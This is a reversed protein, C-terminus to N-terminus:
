IARFFPPLPAFFPLSELGLYKPTLDDSPVNTFAPDIM